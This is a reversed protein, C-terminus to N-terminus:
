RVARSALVNRVLLGSAPWSWGFFLFLVIEHRFSVGIIRMREHFSVFYAMSFVISFLSEEDVITGSVYIPVVSFGVGYVLEMAAVKM